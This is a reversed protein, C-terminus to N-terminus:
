MLIVLVVLLNVLAITARGLITEELERAICVVLKVLIVALLLIERLRLAYMLELSMMSSEFLSRFSGPSSVYFKLISAELLFKTLRHIETYLM